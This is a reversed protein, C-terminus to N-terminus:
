ASDRTARPSTTSPGSRGSTKPAPPFLPARRARRESLCSHHSSGSAAVKTMRTTRLRTQVEIRSLHSAVREKVAGNGVRGLAPASLEVEQQAALM